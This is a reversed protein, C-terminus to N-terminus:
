LRRAFLADFGKAGIGPIQRMFTPGYVRDRLGAGAANLCWILADRGTSLLRVRQDTGSLCTGHRRMTVIQTNAFDMAWAVPSEPGSWVNGPFVGM